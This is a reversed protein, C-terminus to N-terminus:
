RQVMVKLQHARQGDATTFHLFYWGEAWGEVPLRHTGSPLLGSWVEQGAANIARLSFQAGPAWEVAVEDQAPNPFVTPQGSLNLDQRQQIGQPSGGASQLHQGGTHPVFVRAVDIYHKCQDSATGRETNFKQAV